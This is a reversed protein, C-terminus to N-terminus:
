YSWRASRSRVDIHVTGGSANYAIGYKNPFRSKLYTALKSAKVHQCRIDAAIGFLHKSGSSGGVRENHQQCRIGSVIIVPGLDDRITQLVSVLRHSPSIVKGDCDPNKCKCRFESSLFNRSLQRNM